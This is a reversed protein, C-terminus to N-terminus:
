SKNQANVGNTRLEDFSSRRRERKSLSLAFPKYTNITLNGGETSAYARLTPFGPAIGLPFGLEADSAM